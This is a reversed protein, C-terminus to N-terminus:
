DTKIGKKVDKEERLMLFLNVCLLVFSVGAPIAMQPPEGLMRLTYVAGIMIVMFLLQTLIKIPAPGVLLLVAGVLEIWGIVVRYLDSKVEYDFLITCPHVKAYKVFETKMHQYIEPNVKDTLKLVGSAAFIFVILFTVFGHLFGM